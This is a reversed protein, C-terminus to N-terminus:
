QHVSKLPVLSLPDTECARERHESCGVAVLAAVKLDSFHNLGFRVRHVEVQLLEVASDDEGDQDTIRVIVQV